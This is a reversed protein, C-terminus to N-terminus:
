FHVHNGECALFAIPSLNSHAALAQRLTNRAFRANTAMASLMMMFVFVQPCNIKPVSLRLGHKSSYWAKVKQHSLFSSGM